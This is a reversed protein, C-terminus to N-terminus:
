PREFIEALFELIMNGAGFTRLDNHGAGAIFIGRKPERAAALLERGHSIPITRDAEGHIILLPADIESIRKISEYRDKMMWRVPLIWYAEAGVDVASTFPAELVVAAVDHEVAMKVAVGTGLSEGYLVLRDPAVGQALVYAIAARADAYLRDETPRGESGGYGRYSLLLAGYGAELWPQVHGGRGAISGANGHFNSSRQHM